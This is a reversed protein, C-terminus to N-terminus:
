KVIKVESGETLIGYIDKADKARLGICGAHGEPTDDNIAHMCLSGTLGIWYPGYGNESSEPPFDNGDADRWTHGQVAKAVARYQGTDVGGSIGMRVPFRGAYLNKLFLTLTKTSLDVEAHFPGNIMKLETGAVITPKNGIQQSNISYVVQAPVNWRSAIDNLTEGSRIIYPKDSFHNEASYIVKGALADLWDNLRKRQDSTLDKRRYYKTLLGLAGRFNKEAVMKDVQGWAADITMLPASASAAEPALNAQHISDLDLSNSRYGSALSNTSIKDAAESDAVIPQASFQSIAKRTSSEAESLAPMFDNSASIEKAISKAKAVVTPAAPLQDASSLEPMADRATEFESELANILGQDLNNQIPQRVASTIEGISKTAASTTQEYNKRLEDFSPAALAPAAQITKALSPATVPQQTTPTQSFNAAPATLQPAALNNGFQNAMRNQNQNQNQNQIVPASKGFSAFAATTSPNNPAAIPQSIPQAPATPRVTPQQFSGQYNSQAAVNPYQNAYANNPQNAFQNQPANPYGQPPQGQNVASPQYGNGHQMPAQQMAAPPSIALSQNFADPHTLQTTLDTGTTTDEMSSVQYLGISVVLLMVAIATSKLSHM